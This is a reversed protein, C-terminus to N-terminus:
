KYVKKEKETSLNLDIYKVYKIWYQKMQWGKFEITDSSAPISGLLTAIATLRELWEAIDWGCISPLSQYSAQLKM